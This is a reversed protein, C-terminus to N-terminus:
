FRVAAGVGAFVDVADDNVGAGARLDDHLVTYGTEVQVVGRRRHEVGRHLRSPREGAIRRSRTDGKPSPM